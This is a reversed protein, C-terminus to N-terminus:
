ISVKRLKRKKDVSLLVILENYTRTVYSKCLVCISDKQYTENKCDSCRTTKMKKKKKNNLGRGPLDRWSMGM